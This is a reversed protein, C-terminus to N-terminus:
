VYKNALHYQYLDIEVKLKDLQAHISSIMWIMYVVKFRLACVLDSEGLYVGKDGNSLWAPHKTARQGIWRQCKNWMKDSFDNKMMSLLAVSYFIGTPKVYIEGYFIM